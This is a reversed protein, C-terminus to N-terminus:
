LGYLSLCWAGKHRPVRLWKWSKCGKVLGALRGVGYWVRIVLRRETGLIECGGYWLSDHTAALPRLGDGTEM